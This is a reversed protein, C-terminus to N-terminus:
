KNIKEETANSINLYYEIENTLINTKIKFENRNEIELNEM